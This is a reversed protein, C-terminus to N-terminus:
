RLGGMPIVSHINQSNSISQLALDLLILQVNTRGAILYASHRAMRCIETLLGPNRNSRTVAQSIFTKSDPLTIGDRGLLHRALQGASAATLPPVPIQQFHWTIWWLRGTETPALSRTALILPLGLRETLDDLFAAYHGRIEGLHDLLLVYRRSLMQPMVRKRLQSVSLKCLSRPHICPAEDRWNEQSDLVMLSMALSQLASKLTTADRCYLPVGASRTAPRCLARLLATKGIGPPGVLVVSRRESLCTSLRDLLLKRGILGAVQSLKQDTLAHM